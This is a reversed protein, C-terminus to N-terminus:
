PAPSGAEQILYFAREAPPATDTFTGSAVGGGNTALEFSLLDTSVYIDSSGTATFNIVFQGASFACDSITVEFTSGAGSNTAGPTSLLDNEDGFEISDPFNDQTMFDEATAGAGDVTRFVLDFPFGAGNAAIEVAGFYVTPFAADSVAVADIVSNPLAEQSAVTLEGDETFFDATPVLAYTVAFNPLFNIPEIVDAESDLGAAIVFFGDNPIVETTFEYSYVVQNEFGTGGSVVILSLGSLSAGPTGFLEVYEVQDGGADDAWIENLTVLAPPTFTDGADVVTIGTSGSGVGPASAMVVVARDGDVNTDDVVTADFTASAAGAPIEVTAPVTLESTDDSSLSVTLAEANDGGTRSVTGTTAPNADTETVSTVPFSVALFETACPDVGDVRTGFSFAATTTDFSTHQVYNIGDTFDPDLNLSQNAAAGDSYILNVISTGETDLVTITDGANNLGLSGTTTAQVQTTGVFAPLLTEDDTSTVVLACGPDLLTGEPFTHRVLIADSVTWGSIDLQASTANFFEIFEDTDTDGVGDGNVDGGPPDALFENVVLTGPTDNDIIDFSVTVDEFGAASATITAVETAEIEMDDIISFFEEGLDDDAEITVTMPISVDDVLDVSLNVTLPNTLDGTRVVTIANDGTVGEVFVDEDLEVTLAAISSTGLINIGIGGNNEIDFSGGTSESNFAGLTFVVSDGASLDGLAALSLNEFNVGADSDNYDFTTISIPTGGNVAAQIEFDDPGTGSRDLRIDLGTLTVDATM